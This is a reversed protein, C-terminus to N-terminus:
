NVQPGLRTGATGVTTIYSIGDISRGAAGPSGGPVDYNNVDNNGATGLAGGDGGRVNSKLSPGTFFASSTYSRGGAGGALETGPQGDEGNGPGIGGAGGLIGAGGGGGGGRHDNFDACSGGAGGGGGGAIQGTTDTLTIPSRCYLATGGMHGNKGGSGANGGDNAGKGGEGGRGFFKGRVEVHPVFGVPWTGVDVAPLLESNSGTKSNEDFIFTITDGERLAPYIDDHISKLNLNYNTGSITIVRDTLDQEDLSLFRMEEAEVIYRDRMVRVSTVQIPILDMSGNFTQLNRARLRYAGGVIPKVPGKRFLEFTYKHPADHFRGVNIDGVRIATTRAFPAIWRAFISKFASADYNIESEGNIVRAISRFNNPDTTSKLPDKIGFYVLMQSIRKEPQDQVRPADNLRVEADIVTADAPVERLVIMRITAAESDWWMALGCQQIIEAILKRVPTPEGIVATYVRRLYNATESQWDALNIWAPDVEAYNVLLDYLINAPDQADYVLVTQVRDEQEHATAPTGEVGRTITLTDGSRTFDVMENGAIALKGSTAYQANGIGTPTLTASTAVNTIDNLLFGDVPRPALARDSDALKLPDKAIITVEDSANASLSEILYHRVTMDELSQGVWGEYWRLPRGRLYPQRAVMRGLMTGQNYPDYGREDWYKDGGPGVDPHKVDTLRLSISERTGLNEGLSLVTPSHSVSDLNNISDITKPNFGTDMGFRITEETDQRAPVWSYQIAQMAVKEFVTHDTPALALKVYNYIATSGVGTVTTPDVVGAAAKVGIAMVAGGGNGQGSSNDVVETISALSANTWGSFYVAATDDSHTACDVILSNPITTTLGAVSIATGSSQSGYTGIQTWPNGNPKVGRFISLAGVVHNEGSSTFTTTALSTSALRHWFIHMRSNGTQFPSGTIHAWNTPPAITEDGATEIVVLAVDDAVTTIAAGTTVSSATGDMDRSMVHTPASLTEYGLVAQIDYSADEAASQYQASGSSFRFSGTGDDTDETVGTWVTTSMLRSAVSAMVWDSFGAVFSSVLPSPLTTSEAEAKYLANILRYSTLGVLDVAASFELHVTGSTAVSDSDSEIIATGVTTSSAQGRITCAVGNVTALTLTAAGASRYWNISAVYRRTENEAAVDGLSRGALNFNASAPNTQFSEIKTGLALPRNPEVDYHIVDQCSKLTNFCKETGTATDEDALPGVRVAHVKFSGVGTQDLDIRLGTITGGSWDAGGATLAHMDATIMVRQGVPFLDTAAFTKFFSSSEGHGSTTYLIAGEWTAGEALRTVELTVYRNTNGSFSLGTKRIIPDTATATVVMGGLEPTMTNNAGTWGALTGNFFELYGTGLNDGVMVAECPQQGYTLGCKPLDVEAYTLAENTM